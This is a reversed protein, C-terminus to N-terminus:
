DDRRPVEVVDTGTLYANAKYVSFTPPINLMKRGAGGWALALDFLLEDGGNGMLVNNRDLGEVQAIADRLDNALPDPYRNFDLGSLRDLVAKLVPEPISQPNENASLMVRAPIYKPDYPILGDLLPNSARVKNM